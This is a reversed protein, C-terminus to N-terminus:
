RKPPVEAGRDSVSVFDVAEGEFRAATLTGSAYAGTDVGVRRADAYPTAVPTHGHVVRHSFRRKSNLFRQRSWYLDDDTQDELSRAADIGAHVFAYDGMEVYRELGEFFVRHEAPLASNLDAAAQVWDAETANLPSPPKVGYSMLTEAGGQLLWARNELPAAAFAMMAQEHNGRLFRRDYGLPRGSLILDIVGRSDPGRDVYDGLFVVVPAVGERTDAGAQAELRALLKELLDVRGHVDGIAFGVRGEPFKASADHTRSFLGLMNM